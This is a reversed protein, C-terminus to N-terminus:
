RSADRPDFGCSTWRARTGARGPEAQHLDRGGLSWRATATAVVCGMGGRGVAEQRRPKIKKKEKRKKEGDFRWM